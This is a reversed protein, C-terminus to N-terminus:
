SIGRGMRAALGMVIRPDLRTTLQFLALLAYPAVPYRMLSRGALRTAQSRQGMAAHSFALQGLLRAHGRRSGTFEPHKELLVTLGEITMGARDRFFSDGGKQIDALPEEILGIRGVRSVRLLFDYDEAYGYPLGEDYRGAKAFVDARM